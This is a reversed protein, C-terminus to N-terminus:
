SLSRGTVHLPMEIVVVTLYKNCDPRSHMPALDIFILSIQIKGMSINMHPVLQAYRYMETRAAVSMQHDSFYPDHSLPEIFILNFLVQTSKATRQSKKPHWGFFVIVTGFWRTPSQFVLAGLNASRTRLNVFSLM